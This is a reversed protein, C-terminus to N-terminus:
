GPVVLHVLHAVTSALIFSEFGCGQSIFFGKNWGCFCEQKDEGRWKYYYGQNKTPWLSRLIFVKGTQRALTVPHNDEPHHSTIYIHTADPGLGEPWHAHGGSTGKGSGGSSPVQLLRRPRLAQSYSLLLFSSAQAGISHWWAVMSAGSKAQAQTFQKCSLSLFVETTWSVVAKLSKQQFGFGFFQM